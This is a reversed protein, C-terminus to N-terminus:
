VFDSDALVHHVRADARDLFALDAPPMGRPAVLEGATSGVDFFGARALASRYPHHRPLRTSIVHASGQKALEVADRILTEAVAVRGPLVLLDAIQATGDYVRTVAYGLQEGDHEASRVTFPGAREDCYRWNLYAISREAVFDFQSLAAAIFADQREEFRTLTSITWPVGRPAPRRALLSEVYSTTRRLLDRVRDFRTVERARIVAATNSLAPSSSRAKRRRVRGVRERARRLPRLHRIFDRLENAPATDGGDVALHRDAPHTVYNVGLDESPHGEREVYPHLARQVGRGQWEPLLCLDYGSGGVYPRGHLLWIRRVGGIFGVVHAERDVTLRATAGTPHDRFKWDFHDDPAVGLAFWSVQDNFATRIVNMVEARLEPAIERADIWRQTLEFGPVAYSGAFPAVPSIADAEDQPM